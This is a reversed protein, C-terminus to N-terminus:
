KLLQLVGQPLQNAQALMAQSAQNLISNKQYTTMEKAMDVDRIRSEASTLNESSTTLNNVTHELRNQFAGIKSRELSVTQIANNILTVAGSAKAQTTIDLSVGTTSRVGLSTSDMKSIGVQLEQGSNAGIQLHVAKTSDSNAAQKATISITISDGSRISTANSIAIKLAAGGVSAASIYINGGKSVVVGTGVINGLVTTISFVAKSFGTSIGNSLANVVNIHIADTKLATSIKSISKLAVSGNAFSAETTGSANVAATVGKLDGNLLKKTNFETTNAIRDIESTLQTMETQLATRDSTTNTDSSAQVALERMRQLISQSENLGGEATQLMSTGDQANRTAQDLGRIQGRMKESIALGAADDAASNIRLGSSLKALSSETAKQNATMRNYTNLSALNHNIIM